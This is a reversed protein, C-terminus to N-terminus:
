ISRRLLFVWTNVNRWKAVVSFVTCHFHYEGSNVCYGYFSLWLIGETWLSVGSNYFGSHQFSVLLKWGVETSRVYPLVEPKSSLSDRPLWEFRMPHRWSKLFVGRMETSNEIPLFYKILSYIKAIIGPCELWGLLCGSIIYFKPLSPWCIHVNEGVTTYRPSACIVTFRINEVTCTTTRGNLSSLPIKM